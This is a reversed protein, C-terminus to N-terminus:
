LGRTWDVKWPPSRYLVLPGVAELKRVQPNFEKRVNQQSGFVHLVVSLGCEATKCSVKLFILSLSLSIAAAVVKCVTGLLYHM